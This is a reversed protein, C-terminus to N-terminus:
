PNPALCFFLAFGLFLLPACERAGCRTGRREIQGSYRGLELVAALLLTDVPVPHRRALHIKHTPHHARVRPIGRPARLSEIPICPPTTQRTADEKPQAQQPSWKREEAGQRVSPRTGNM